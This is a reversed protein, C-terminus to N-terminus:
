IVDFCFINSVIDEWDGYKNQMLQCLVETSLFLDKSDKITIRPMRVEIDYTHGDSLIKVHMIQPCVRRFEQVVTETLRLTLTTHDVCLVGNEVKTNTLILM